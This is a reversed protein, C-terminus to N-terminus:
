NLLKSTQEYTSFTIGASPIGRLFAAQWGRFLQMMGEERVLRTTVSILGSCKSDRGDAQILSKVTDFRLAVAWFSIGGFAGATLLTATEGLKGSAAIRQKSCHFVMFYFAVGLSDRAITTTLGKWM